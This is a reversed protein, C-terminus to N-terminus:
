GRRKHHSQYTNRKNAILLKRKKQFNSSLNKNQILFMHLFSELSIKKESIKEECIEDESINEESIDDESIDSADSLVICFRVDDEYPSIIPYKQLPYSIM